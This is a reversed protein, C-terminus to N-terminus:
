HLHGKLISDWRHEVLALLCDGSSQDAVTRSAFLHPTLGAHVNTPYQLARFWGVQRDHLRGSEFQHDIQLGGLHVACRRFVSAAAAVIPTLISGKGIRLASSNSSANRLAASLRTWAIM